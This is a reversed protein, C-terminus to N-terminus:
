VDVRPSVYRPASPNLAATRYQYTTSTYSASNTESIPQNQLMAEIMQKARNYQATSKNEPDRKTSWYYSSAFHEEIERLQDIFPHTDVAQDARLTSWLLLQGHGYQLADEMDTPTLEPPTGNSGDTPSGMLKRAKAPRGLYTYVM